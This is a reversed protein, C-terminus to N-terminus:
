HVCASVSGPLDLHRLVANCVSYRLSKCQDCRGRLCQAVLSDTLSQLLVTIGCPTRLADTKKGEKPLTEPMLGGTCDVLITHVVLIYRYQM